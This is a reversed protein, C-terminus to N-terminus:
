APRGDPQRELGLIRRVRRSADRFQEEATLIGVFMLNEAAAYDDIEREVGVKKRPSRTRQLWTPMDPTALKRLISLQSAATLQKFKVLIREDLLSHDYEESNNAM